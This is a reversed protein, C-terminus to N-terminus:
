KNQIIKALSDIIKTKDGYVYKAANTFKRIYRGLYHNQLTQNYMKFSFDDRRIADVQQQQWRAM